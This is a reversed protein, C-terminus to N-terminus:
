LDVIGVLVNLLNTLILPWAIAWVDAIEGRLLSEPAEAKDMNPLSM